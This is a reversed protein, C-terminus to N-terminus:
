HTKRFVGPKVGYGLALGYSPDDYADVVLQRAKRLLSHCDTLLHRLQLQKKRKEYKVDLDEIAQLASQDLVRGNIFDVIM